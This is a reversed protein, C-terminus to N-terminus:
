ESVEHFEKQHKKCVYCQNRVDCPRGKNDYAMHGGKAGWKMMIYKSCGDWHCYMRWKDTRYNGDKDLWEYNTQKYKM